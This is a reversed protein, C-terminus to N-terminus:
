LVSFNFNLSITCSMPKTPQFKFWMNKDVYQKAPILEGPKWTRYSDGVLMTGSCDGNDVREYSLEGPIKLGKDNSLRVVFDRKIGALTGADIDFRDPTINLKFNVTARKWKYTCETRTYVPKGYGNDGTLTLTYVTSLEYLDASTDMILGPAGCVGSLFFSDNYTPDGNIEDRTIEERGDPHIIVNRVIYASSEMYPGNLSHYVRGRDKFNDGSYVADAPESRVLSFVRNKGDFHFSNDTVTRGSYNVYPKSTTYEYTVKPGQGPVEYAVMLKSSQLEYTHAFVNLSMINTCFILASIYRLLFKLM